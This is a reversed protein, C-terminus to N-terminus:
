GGARSRSPQLPALTEGAHFVDRYAVYDSVHLTAAFFFVYPLLVALALVTAVSPPVLMALLAVAVGPVLGGFVLVGVGYLALARWNAFSARLSWVLAQRAPLDQFVVLGPAFWVAALAPVAVLVAFVMAFQTRPDALTASLTAAWADREAATAPAPATLTDLLRGGDVLATSLVAATIGLVFVFGIALLAHLNSRFGQFLDRVRPSGGREQTWAAALFGVAFVPKILPVALQGVLPVVDVGMMVLYYTALLLVWPLRARSFLAWAQVLWALGKRTEHVTYVVDRPTDM